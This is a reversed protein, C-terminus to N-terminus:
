TPARCLRTPCGRLCCHPTWSGSSTTPLPWRLWPACVPPSAPSLNDTSCVTHNHAAPLRRHGTLAASHVMDAQMQCVWDRVREGVETANIGMAVAARSGVLGAEEADYWHFRIRNVLTLNGSLIAENVAAALLLVAVSGSGDDNLGPGGFSDLHGGVVITNAPDGTLTDAIVNTGSRGGAVTWPQFRWRLAPLREVVSRVYALSATYGPTGTQRTGNGIDAAQQLGNLHTNADEVRIFAHLPLPGPSPYPPSKTVDVVVLAILIALAVVLAALLPLVLHPSRYRLKDLFGGSSESAGGMVSYSDSKDGSLLGTSKDSSSSM